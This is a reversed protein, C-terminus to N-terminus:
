LTNLKKRSRQILLAPSETQVKELDFERLIADLAKLGSRNNRCEFEDRLIRIKEFSQVGDVFRELRISTRGHPYILYCDGAPWARFRSDALPDKTWSNFAWRLYGDLGKKASFWSIWESEAPDSFTFTNPHSETCCTYFTSTKGEHKRQLLQEEEFDENITICYDNLWESQEPYYSGALAIKWNPDSARIINYAAQMSERPREDMAIYTKEFWGKDKLHNAFASLLPLWFDSYAQDTAKCSVKQMRNTAQDFYEFSMRWPVMSFCHIQGTVGVSMMFEVWRDFVAYDYSWSGDLRKICTIMNDFADETQGDWPRNIITTTIVKGGAKAYLEMDPKMLRFHEESWLPVGYVRAEAYPNQWLDLHYHWDSPEPLVRDIVKVKMSLSALIEDGDAVKVTGRYIGAKTDAPVKLSLWVPQSTNAAVPKSLALHDIIDAVLTSDFDTSIRYGCNSGGGKNLEDTMVYGIFAKTVRSAPIVKSGSTLDSVEVKVNGIDALSSIVLQASVKEGRWAELAITKPLPTQITKEQPYRTDINGWGIVPSTNQSNALTASALMILSLLTQKM